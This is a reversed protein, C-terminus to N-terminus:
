GLGGELGEEAAACCASALLNAEAILLV